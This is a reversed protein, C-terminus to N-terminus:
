EKGVRREESRIDAVQDVRESGVARQDVTGEGLDAFVDTVKGDDQGIAADKQAATCQVKVARMKALHTGDRNQRRGLAMARAAADQGREDGLCFLVANLGDAQERANRIIKKLKAEADDFVFCFQGVFDELVALTARAQM